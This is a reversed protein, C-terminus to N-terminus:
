CTLQLTGFLQGSCVRYATLVGNGNIKPGSTGARKHVSTRAQAHGAVFKATLWTYHATYRWFM